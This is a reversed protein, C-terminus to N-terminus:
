VALQQHFSRWVGTLVACPHTDKKTNSAVCSHGNKYPTLHMHPGQSTGAQYVCGGRVVEDTPHM